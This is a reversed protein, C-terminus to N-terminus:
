RKRKASVNAGPAVSSSPAAALSDIRGALAGIQESLMKREGQEAALERKIESLQDATQQLSAQLDKVTQEMSKLAPKTEDSPQSTRSQLEPHVGAAPWSFKQWVLIGVLCLAALVLLVVIAIRASRPRTETSTDSM